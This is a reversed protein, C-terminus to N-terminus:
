REARSAPSVEAKPQVSTAQAGPAGDASRTPEANGPPASKGVPEDDDDIGTPDFAGRMAGDPDISNKVHERVDFRQVQQMKQKLEDLEAERVMDSLGNQFERSLGRAKGIIRALTRMAAPLDKPGVVILALVAIFFLEQWGIDLM